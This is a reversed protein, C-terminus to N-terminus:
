KEENVKELERALECLDVDQPAKLRAVEAELAEVQAAHDAEYAAYAATVERYCKFCFQHTVGNHSDITRLNCKTIRCGILRNWHTLFSDQM